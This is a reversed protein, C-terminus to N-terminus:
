AHIGHILSINPMSILLSPMMLKMYKLTLSKEVLMNTYFRKSGHIIGLFTLQSALCPNECQELSGM